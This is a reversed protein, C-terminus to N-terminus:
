AALHRRGAAIRGATERVQRRSRRTIEEFEEKHYSRVASRAKPIQVQSLRALFAEAGAPSAHRLLSRLTSLAGPLSRWGRHQLM